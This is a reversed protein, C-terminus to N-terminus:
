VKGFIRRTRYGRVKLCNLALTVQRESGTAYCVAGIFLAFKPSGDRCVMGTVPMMVAEDKM